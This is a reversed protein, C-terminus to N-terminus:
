QGQSRTSATTELTNSGKYDLKAQPNGVFYLIVHGIYKGRTVKAKPSIIKAKNTEPPSPDM